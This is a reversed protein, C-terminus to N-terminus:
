VKPIDEDGELLSLLLTVIKSKFEAIKEIDEEDETFGLPLFESPKEFGALFDRSSDIIKADILAAQNGPCPGQIFEILSDLMQQGMDCTNASFIKYFEGLMRAILSIFDYTKGNQNGDINYQERLQDQLHINHNECLLQMFRLILQLYRLARAPTLVEEDNSELSTELDNM